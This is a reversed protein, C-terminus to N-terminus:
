IIRCTYSNPARFLRVSSLHALAALSELESRLETQWDFHVAEHSALPIIDSSVRMLALSQRHCYRLMTELAGLNNRSVSLLNDRSARSLTLSSQAAGPLGVTKCAFGYRIM